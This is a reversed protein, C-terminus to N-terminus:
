KFEKFLEAQTKPVWAAVRGTKVNIRLGRLFAPVEGSVVLARGVADRLEATGSREGLVLAIETAAAQKKRPSRKAAEEEGSSREEEEEEEEELDDEEDDDDEEDQQKKKRGRAAKKEDGKGEKEDKKKEEGKRPRGRGRKSNSKEELEKLEEPTRM